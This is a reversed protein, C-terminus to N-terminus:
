TRGSSQTRYRYRRVHIPQYKEEENKKLGRITTKTDTEGRNHQTLLVGQLLIPKRPNDLQRIRVRHLTFFWICIVEIFRGYQLHAMYIIYVEIVRIHSAHEVQQGSDGHIHRDNPNLNSICEVLPLSPFTGTERRLKWYEALLENLDTESKKLHENM